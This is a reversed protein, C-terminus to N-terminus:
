AKGRRLYDTLLMTPAARPKSAARPARRADSALVDIRDISVHVITPESKASHLRQALTIASLPHQQTPPAPADDRRARVPQSADDLPRPAPAAARAHAEYPAPQAPSRVVVTPAPPPAPSLEPRAAGHVATREAVDIAESRTRMPPKPTAEHPARSAKSTERQDPELIDRQMAAHPAASSEAEIDQAGASPGAFRPLLAPQVAHQTRAAPALRAFFRMM